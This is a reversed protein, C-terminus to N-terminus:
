KLFEQRLKTEAYRLWIGVHRTVLWLEQRGTEASDAVSVEDISRLLELVRRLAVLDEALRLAEVSLARKTLVRFRVSVAPRGEAHRDDSQSKHALADRSCATDARHFAALGWDGFVLWGSAASRSDV